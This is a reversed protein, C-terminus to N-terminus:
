KKTVDACAPVFNFVCLRIYSLAYRHIREKILTVIEYQARDRLSENARVEPIPVPM